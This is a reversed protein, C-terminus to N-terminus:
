KFEYNYCMNNYNCEFYWINNVLFDIWFMYKDNIFKRRKIKIENDLFIFNLFYINKLCKVISDFNKLIVLVLYFVYVFLNLLKKKFLVIKKLLFIDM